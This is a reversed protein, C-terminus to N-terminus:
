LLYPTLYLSTFVFLWVVDVFHWYIGGIKVAVYRRDDFYGLATWLLLFLLVALGVVVHMLHFGTITFYISNYLNATLDYNKKGWEGLQIMVFAGGLLIAVAM